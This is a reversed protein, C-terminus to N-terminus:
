AASETAATRSAENELRASLQRALENFAHNEVPTLSPPRADGTHPFPVVNQPTDYRMEHTDQPTEVAHDPDAPHSTELATPENLEEPPSAANIEPPAAPPTPAAAVPESLPQPASGSFFEYRRLAALRALGDLDRCVGFGRYGAFNRNRDFVPLGSLEVPLRGGGDVPWHLTIGSWTDHGAFAKMVRGEPDLGFAAAIDSWLRGFGAATHMGILRTFEDSGLSFRGEHDMQWMFRLPHRRTPLPEDLWSPAAVPAPAAAAPEADPAPLDAVGSPSLVPELPAAAPVPAPTSGQPTLDPAAAQPAVETEAAATVEDKDAAVETLAETLPEDAEDPTAEMLAEILLEDAPPADGSTADPHAPVPEAQPTEEPPPPEAPAADATEPAGVVPEATAPEEPSPDLADFLTFTEPTEGATAPAEHPAAPEAIPAPAVADQPPTPAPAGAAATEQAVVDPVVPPAPQAARVLRPKILAVLALDAGRGIRHLVVRGIAVSESARGQKLADTRATDLGAETLDHLGPLPRAGDNAAILLGDGSFAAAPRPLGQVLRQLRETLPMSRGSGNIATMLVGHSGDPLDIRACGCTALM